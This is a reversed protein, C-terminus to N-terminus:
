AIREPGDALSRTPEALWPREITPVGFHYGQLYRVGRRALHMADAATEVCEAVTALGFGDALSLLTRIFLQNDVNEAFGRVFSGDIKVCNVALAKLNRFSTYGAGFDDLAVGCGLDRVAAVFRATEDIDELAMTETIEVILREAIDRRGKLGANLSRLWSRDAATLGSINIALKVRPHRNLENLALDLAKRDLQRVLGSQEVVPLFAGAPVVTGDERILRLLCEYHDVSYDHADVIPQYAFTIRDSKLAKQVDEVIALTLRHMQRQEDSSRFVVYCNRGAQKADKLASDARNMTELATTAQADFRAAGISVTVHIPGSPTDLPSQRVSQLIKEAAIALDGDPCHALVIGFRDGGIRGVVASARLCRDLRQSLGIIVADATEYGFAENITSLKDIGVSFYAGESRYRQSYAIAHELAEKLRSRNFHGTLEDFNALYELQTERQKRETVIRLTGIMRSPRGDPGLRARGKDQVWNLRGQPGRLRYECEFADRTGFHQSLARFRRPLDEVYVFKNLADGSKPADGDRGFLDETEGSWVIVDAHLDWDYVIDGSAEFAARLRDLEDSTDAM